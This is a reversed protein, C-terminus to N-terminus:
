KQSNTYSLQKVKSGSDPQALHGISDAVLHMGQGQIWLTAFLLFVLMQQQSPPRHPHIQFLLWYIPILVLPTLLDLVDGNKM